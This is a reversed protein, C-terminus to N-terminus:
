GQYRKLVLPVYTRLTDDNTISCVAIEGFEITITGDENCDGGWTTAEYGLLVSESAAHTGPIVPQPVGWSVPEGDLYAQFDAATAGGGDDNIVTKTLTVTPAIDDNSISCTKDDGITLTITGDSACDGSWASASYGAQVTESVTYTGSIVAQATGWPVPTGQIYAQFDAATAGGGDDNIVTKSVTLSVPWEYPGMDVAGGIIRPYGDLDFPLPETTDSDGDLDLADAPVATSDGADIAPSAASLRLNDDLTGVIDDLGDADVFQPDADINGGGDTGVSTDWSGGSGGSDQVLSYSMTPTSNDNYIQPGNPASNSWLIANTLTVSSGAWNHMGGGYTASNSSLSVNTVTQSAGNNLMAGGYYASNGSFTVNILTQTGSTNCVGGGGWGASNGGFTVNVLTPSAQENHMGGGAFWASNGSFTVNTLMPSSGYGNYMGGGDEDAYNDTFTVEALRPSSEDNRMGGGFWASNGSFTVNGLTPSSEWNDMGGGDDSASNGSFSVNTLTPSSGWNYMGGGNDSASNGNFTVNTLTPSSTGRNVMGGGDEASNGSFTVNGLTPSSELNHMGGGDDSASNGSFSVNALTPGGGDNYMGGGDRDASIGDAYGGTITFGDLVCTETVSSTAVVHYSNSGTINATTTIVDNPDTIDNDDIDASLVTINSEWDRQERSTESGVFGGYLEVGSVLEFSATRDTGTTTPTHVGTAAWIEDGYSAVDELAHQLTCANAWNSCDGTGTAGTKVHLIGPSGMATGLAACLVLLVGLVLIPLLWRKRM